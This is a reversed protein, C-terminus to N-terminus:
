AIAEKKGKLIEDVNLGWYAQTDEETVLERYHRFVVGSNNHGLQLSVFGADNIKALLYSAYSHRLANHKWQQSHTELLKKKFIRIRREFGAKCVRGTEFPFYDKLWDFLVDQIKVLRRQATKTVIGSLDIFGRDLRVDEWELRKIEETRLGAFAGILLFALVDKYSENQNMMKVALSFCVQLEDPTFVETKSPKVTIKPTSLAPNEKCYGNVRCWSFFVSVVRRYHNVTIPQAKISFLWNSIEGARIECVFRNGFIKEFKKLRCSLDEQYKKSKESQRVSYLYQPVLEDVTKSSEFAELHTLYFAIADQITKGKEELKEISESLDWLLRGNIKGSLEQGHKQIEKEKKLVFQSAEKKTKFLKDGTKGNKPFRVRWKYASKNPNNYERLTIKM